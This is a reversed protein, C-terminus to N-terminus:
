NSYGVRVKELLNTIEQKKVSLTKMDYCIDSVNELTAANLLTMGVAYIEAKDVDYTPKTQFNNM